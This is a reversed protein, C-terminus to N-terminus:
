GLLCQCRRSRDLGLQARLDTRGVEGQRPYADLVRLAIQLRQSRNRFLHSAGDDRQLQDGRATVNLNGIQLKYAHANVLKVVLGKRGEFGSARDVIIVWDGVAFAQPKSLDLRGFTFDGADERRILDNVDAYPITLWGRGQGASVLRVSPIRERLLNRTAGVDGDNDDRGLALAFVYPGLLPIASERPRRMFRSRTMRRLLPVYCTVGLNELRERSVYETGPKCRALLWSM